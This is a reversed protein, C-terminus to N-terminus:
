NRGSNRLDALFWYPVRESLSENSKIKNQQRTQFVDSRITSVARFDKRSASDNRFNAGTLVLVSETTIKLRTV